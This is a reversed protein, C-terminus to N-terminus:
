WPEKGSVVPAGGVPYDVRRPKPQESVVALDTGPPFIAVRVDLFESLQDRVRRTFESMDWASTIWDPAIVALRDGPKLDLRRLNELPITDAIPTDEPATM